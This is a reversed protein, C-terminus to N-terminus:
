LRRRQTWQWVPWATVTSMNQYLFIILVHGSCRGRCVREVSDSLGPPTLDEIGEDAALTRHVVDDHQEAQCLRLHGFV